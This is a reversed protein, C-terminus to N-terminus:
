LAAVKLQLKITEGCQLGLAADSNVQWEAGAVDLIYHTEKGQYLVNKILGPIGPGEKILVFEEPRVPYLNKGRWTEAVRQNRWFFQAGGPEPYFRDKEWRGRVLNAKGVFRAVFETAPQTYIELPAGSQEIRGQNMVIMRDAMALAEEQDHTVLVITAKTFRSINQIERRMEVRLGADLSSLPEDMLLLSPAPAIARALAVRQKQGGSLQDPFREALEALGVMGLIEGVRRDLRRRHEGAVFRHHRLAFRIHERVNLHPWLAFSQFVMGINRREPPVIRAPTSLVAGDIAITGSTPAIFGALMRLLTTKGCGSPGLVALFEGGPIALDIQKLATFNGFQKTLGSIAVTM